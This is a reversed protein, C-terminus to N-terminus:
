PIIRIKRTTYPRLIPLEQKVHYCLHLHLSSNDDALVIGVLESSSASYFMDTPREGQKLSACTLSMTVDHDTPVLEKALSHAKM